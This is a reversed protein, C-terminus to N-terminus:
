LYKSILVMVEQAREVAVLAPYHATNKFARLKRGMLFITGIGNKYEELRIKEINTYDIINLQDGKILHWTHFLIRKNTVVFKTKAKQKESKFAVILGVSLLLIFLSVIFWFKIVVLVQFVYFVIALLFLMSCGIKELMNMNRDFETQMASEIDKYKFLPKGEWIIHEDPLLQM